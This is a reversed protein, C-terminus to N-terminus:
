QNKLYKLYMAAITRLHKLISKQAFDKDRRRVGDLIDFHQQVFVAFDAETFFRSIYNIQQVDRVEQIYRVLKQNGSASYLESHFKDNWDPEDPRRRLREAGNTKVENLRKSYNDLYEQAQRINAATAKECALRIANVELIERVEFTEKISNETVPTVILGRTPLRTVIGKVELQKLAERVPTRSLGLKEAIAEEILRQNPHMKGSLIDDEIATRARNITNLKENVIKNKKSM